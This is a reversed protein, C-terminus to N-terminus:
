ADFSINANKTIDILKVKDFIIIPNNSTQDFLLLENGEVPIKLPNTLTDM